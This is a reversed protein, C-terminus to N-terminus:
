KNRLYRYLLYAVGVAGVAYVIWTNRRRFADREDLLIYTFSNGYKAKSDEAARMMANFDAENQWVQCGASDRGIVAVNNKGRSARHINIGFFGSETTNLFDTYGDRDKDRIVTVPKLRQVLATYKGAHTGVVYTDKYEGSKLIAAGSQNMPNKLYFTSPDTTAVGVRGQPNGNQDFYIYALTDDFKDQSVPNGNRIGVVTLKYPRKDLTYGKREVSRVIDKISYM